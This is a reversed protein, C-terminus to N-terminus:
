GAERSLPEGARVSKVDPTKTWKLGVVVVEVRKIPKDVLDGLDPAPALDPTASGQAAEEGALLAREGAARDKGAPPPPPDARASSGFATALLALVFIALRALRM